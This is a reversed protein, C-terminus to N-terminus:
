LDTLYWEEIDNPHIFVSAANESLEELYMKNGTKINMIYAKLPCYDPILWDQYRCLIYKGKYTESECLDISVCNSSLMRMVTRTKQTNTDISYLNKKSRYLIENDTIWGYVEQGSKIELAKEKGDKWIYINKDDKSKTYAIRDKNAGCLTDVNEILADVKNGAFDVYYISIDYYRYKDSNYSAGCVIVGDKYKCLKLGDKGDPLLLSSEVSNNSVKLVYTDQRNLGTCYYSGNNYDTVNRINKYGRLSLTQKTNLELDYIYANGDYDSIVVKGSLDKFELAKLFNILFFLGITIILIIIFFVIKNKNRIM